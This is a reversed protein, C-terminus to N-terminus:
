RLEEFLLENPALHHLPRAGLWATLSLVLEGRGYGPLWALELQPQLRLGPPELDGWLRGSLRGVFVQSARDRDIFRQKLSAGVVFGLPGWQQRLEAAVRGAEPSGDSNSALRLGALIAANAWPRAYLDVAGAMGWPHTQRWTSALAPALPEDQPFPGDALQLSSRLTFAPILWLHRGLGVPRDLRLRSTWSALDVGAARQIEMATRASIRLGVVPLRHWTSLWLVGSPLGEIWARAAAGVAGYSDAEGFRLRHAAAQELVTAGQALVDDDVSQVVRLAARVELAGGPSPLPRRGLEAGGAFGSSADVGPSLEAWAVEEDPPLVLSSPLRRSLRIAVAGGEVELELRSTAETWLRLTLEEPAGYAVGQDSRLAEDVVDWRREAVVAGDLLVRLAAAEGVRPAVQLRLDTPGRLAWQVPEGPWAVWFRRETGPPRWAAGGLEFAAWRGAGGRPVKLELRGGPVAPLVVDMVAGPPVVHVQPEQGEVRSEVRCDPPAGPQPAALDVCRARCRLEAPADEPLRVVWATGAPLSRDVRELGASLVAYRAAGEPDDLADPTPPPLRLTIRDGGARPPGLSQSRTARSAERLAGAAERDQAVELAAAAHLRALLAADADRRACHLAELALARHLPLIQDSSRLAGALDGAALSALASGPAAEDLWLPGGRGGAAAVDLALPPPRAGLVEVYDPGTARAAREIQRALRQRLPADASVLANARRLDGLAYAPLDAGLFAGARGARARAEAGADQAARAARVRETWQVLGLAPGTPPPAGSAVPAAAPQLAPRPGRTALRLWIPGRDDLLRVVASGLAEDFHASALGGAAPLAVVAEEPLMPPPKGRAWVTLRRRGGVTLVQLERRDGLAPDWWAEIRLHTPGHEDTLMVEAEAGRESLALARTRWLHPYQPGWPGEGRESVPLDSAVFLRGEAGPPLDFRLVRPGPPLAMRFPVVGRDVLVRAPEGGDVSLSMAAPRGGTSLALFRVVAWRQPADVDAPVDLRVERGTPLFSAVWPVHRGGRREAVMGNDAPLAQALPVADSLPTVRLASWGTGSRWADLAVSRLAEATDGPGAGVLAAEARPLADGRATDWPTRGQVQALLALTAPDSVDDDLAPALLAAALEWRGERAAQHAEAVAPQPQTLEGDVRDPPHPFRSRPGYSRQEVWLPAGEARLSWGGEGPGLPMTFRRRALGEPPLVEPVLVASPLRHLPAGDPGEVILEFPLPGPTADPGVDPRVDLVLMAPGTADLALREGEALRVDRDPALGHGVRPLWPGGRELTTLEDARPVPGVPEAPLERAIWLRPLGRVRGGAPELRWSASVPGSRLVGLGGADLPLLREVEATLAGTADRQLDVVRAATAGPWEVRAWSEGAVGFCPGPLCLPDLAQEVWVVGASASRPASVLLLLLLLARVVVRYGGREGGRASQAPIVVFALRSLPTQGRM